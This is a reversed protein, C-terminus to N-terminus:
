ALMAVSMLVKHEAYRSGGLKAKRDSGVWVPRRQSFTRRGLSPRQVGEVSRRRGVTAVGPTPSAVPGRPAPARTPDGPRLRQGALPKIKAAALVFSHTTVRLTLGGRSLPEAFLYFYPAPEHRHGGAAGPQM